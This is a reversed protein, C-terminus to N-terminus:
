SNGDEKEQNNNIIELDGHDIADIPKPTRWVTTYPRVAVAYVVANEFHQARKIAEKEDNFLSADLPDGYLSYVMYRLLTKMEDQKYNDNVFRSVLDRSYSMM